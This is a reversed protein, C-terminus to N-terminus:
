RQGPRRRQLRRRARLLGGMGGECGCECSVGVAEGEALRGVIAVWNRINLKAEQGESEM